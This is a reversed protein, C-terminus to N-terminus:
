FICKFCNKSRYWMANPNPLMESWFTLISLRAMYKLRLDPHHTQVSTLKPSQDALDLRTRREFGSPENSYQIGDRQSKM